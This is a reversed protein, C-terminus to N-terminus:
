RAPALGTSWGARRPAALPRSLHLDQSIPLFFIAFGYQYIGGGVANGLAGLFVIRWGYFLNGPLALLRSLSM